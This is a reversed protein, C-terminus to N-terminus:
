ADAHPGGVHCQARNLHGDRSETNNYVLAGCITCRNTTDDVLEFLSDHPPDNYDQFAGSISHPASAPVGEIKNM